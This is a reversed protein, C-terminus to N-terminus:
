RTLRYILLATRKTLEPASALDAYERPTHAGEGRLGLGDLGPLPPAVISIDGAGRGKPDFPKVEGFGLDRSVQDLQALLAYNGPAPAM